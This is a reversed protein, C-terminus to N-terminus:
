GSAARVMAAAVVPSRDQTSQGLTAAAQQAGTRPQVLGPQVVFTARVVSGPQVRQGIRRQRRQEPAVAPRARQAGPEAVDRERVPQDARKARMQEDLEAGM